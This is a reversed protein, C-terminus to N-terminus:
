KLFGGSEEMATTCDFSSHISRFDEVPTRGSEYRIRFQNPVAGPPRSLTGCWTPSAGAKNEVPERALLNGKNM